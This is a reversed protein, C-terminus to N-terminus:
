TRKGTAKKARGTKAARGQKRKQLLRKLKKRESKAVIYGVCNSAGCRCIHDPFHELEYGYDFYLEEGAAIDKKAYIFIRDDENVAECNEDCSHNIYKAPNRPINGDLDFADNLNFVYVLGHGKVRAKEEWELCLRESEEKGILRGRYELIRDGKAIDVNAFLGKSHIGSRGIRWLKPKRNMATEHNANRVTPPEACTQVM